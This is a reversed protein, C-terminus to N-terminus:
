HVEAPRPALAEDWLAAFLAGERRDRLRYASERSMGAAAAAASISRMRALTCLFHLQREATWGDRRIRATPTAPRVSDPSSMRWSPDCRGAQLVAFIGTRLRINRRRIPPRSAPAALSRWRM